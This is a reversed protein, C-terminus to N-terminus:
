KKKSPYIFQWFIFFYIIFLVMGLYTHFLKSALDASIFAGIMVLSLVRLINVLYIGVLGPIAMFLLKRHDLNKWEIAAIIISLTVFMFLSDLGSCSEGIEVGYGSVYLTRPYVVSVNPTVLLAISRVVQLVSGSFFPWLKWIQFIALDYFIAIGVAIALEKRFSIAVKSLFAYGFCGLLISTPVAVLTLHSAIALWLQNSPSTSSLLSSALLYFLIGLPLSLALSLYNYRALPLLPALKPRLNKYMLGALLGGILVIKGLNAYIYFYYNYLLPTPVLWSGILGSSM